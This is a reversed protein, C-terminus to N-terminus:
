KRENLILYISECQKVFLLTERLGISIKFCFYIQMIQTTVLSFLNEANVIVIVNLAFEYRKVGCVNPKAALVNIHAFKRLTHFLDWIPDRNIM